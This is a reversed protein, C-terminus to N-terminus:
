FVCFIVISDELHIHLEPVVSKTRVNTESQMVNKIVNLFVAILIECQRLLRPIVEYWAQLCKGLTKNNKEPAPPMTSYSVNFGLTDSHM